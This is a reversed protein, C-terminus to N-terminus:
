HNKEGRVRLYDRSDRGDAASRTSGYTAAEHDAKEKLVLPTGAINAAELFESLVSKFLWFRASISM